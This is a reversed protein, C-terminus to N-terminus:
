VVSNFMKLLIHGDKSSRYDLLLRFVHKAYAFVFTYPLRILRKKVVYIACLGEVKKIRCQLGRTMKHTQVARNTDSRDPVGFFPKRVIGRLQYMRKKQEVTSLFTFFTFLSWSGFHSIALLYTSM